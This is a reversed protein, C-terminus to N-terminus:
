ARKIGFASEFDTSFKALSDTIKGPQEGLTNLMKEAMQPKHRILETAALMLSLANNIDHRMTSLKQNLEQIQGANLQVSQVTVPM